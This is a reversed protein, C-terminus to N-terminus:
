QISHRQKVIEFLFIGASVSVNLSQIRGLMPIKILSDCFGETNHRLGKEENGLILAIPVNYSEDFYNKNAKLSTGILWFGKEKLTKAINALSSIQAIKLHSVAGASTKAVVENIPATEHRTILVGDVKAAEATRLIAGLNHTDQIHELILILPFKNKVSSEIIENPGFFKLESQFAIVGQNRQEASLKVPSVVNVRIGKREAISKIQSIIEGTQGFAIQIRDIKTNSKLAELVPKRGIIQSM